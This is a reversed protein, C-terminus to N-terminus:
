IVVLGYTGTTTAARVWLFESTWPTTNAPAGPGGPAGRVDSGPAASGIAASLAIMRPIRQLGHRFRTEATSSVTGELYVGGLLRALRALGPAAIDAGIQAGLQDFNHAVNRANFSQETIPLLPNVVSGEGERPSRRLGEVVALRRM